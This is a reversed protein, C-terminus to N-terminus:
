GLMLRVFRDLFQSRPLNLLKGSINKQNKIKKEKIRKKIDNILDSMEIAKILKM